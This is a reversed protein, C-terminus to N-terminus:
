APVVEDLLGGRHTLPAFVVERHHGDGGPIGFRHYAIVWEDGVRAISHHGTARIGLRENQQLLVGRDTWPGFPSSGTAYRVRYEPERTDNESYSLYYVDDRRHVWGAERFGPPEWSVVDAADFSMLDDNLRVGHLVTNGWYLYTAGDADVFISPDIAMGAFEGAAVLPRGLDTFPGTPSSGVAVGINNEATFYLYWRGHREHVAPAWAHERAWGIDTGLRLIEGHDHWTSLDRSSYARFSTAGWGEIGDTTPYLWYTGDVFLLCPDALYMGVPSASAAVAARWAPSASAADRSEVSAGAAARRAPSASAADRSVPESVM